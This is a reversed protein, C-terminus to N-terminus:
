VLLFAGSRHRHRPRERGKGRKKGKRKKKEKGGQYHAYSKHNSNSRHGGRSVAAIQDGEKPLFPIPVPRLKGGGKKKEKGGKGKKRGWFFFSLRGKAWLVGRGKEEGRKGFPPFFCMGRIVYHNGM